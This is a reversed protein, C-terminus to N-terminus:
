SRLRALTRALSVDVVVVNGNVVLYGKERLWVLGDTINLLPNSFAQRQNPKKLWDVFQLFPFEPGLGHEVLFRLVWYSAFEAEVKGLKGAFPFPPGPDSALIEAPTTPVAM